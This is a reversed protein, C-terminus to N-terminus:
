NNNSSTIPNQVSVLFGLYSSNTKLPNFRFGMVYVHLIAQGGVGASTTKSTQACTDGLVYNPDKYIGCNTDGGAPATSYGAGITDISAAVNNAPNLM